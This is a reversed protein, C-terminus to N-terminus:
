VITHKRLNYSHSCSLSEDDGMVENELLGHNIHANWLTDQERDELLESSVTGDVIHPVSQPSDEEVNLIESLISDNTAVIDCETTITNTRHKLANLPNITQQLIDTETTQSFNLINMEMNALTELAKKKPSRHIYSRLRNSNLIFIACAIICSTVALTGVIIFLVIGMNDGHQGFYSYNKNYIINNTTNVFLSTTSIEDDKFYTTTVNNKDDNSKFITTGRLTTSNFPIQVGIQKQIAHIIQCRLTEHNTDFVTLLQQQQIETCVFITINVLMQHAKYVYEIDLETSDLCGPILEKTWEKFIDSTIEVINTADNLKLKHNITLTDMIEYM